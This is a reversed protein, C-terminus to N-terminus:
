REEESALARRAIVRMKEDADLSISLEGDDTHFRSNEQGSIAMLAGRLREVERRHREVLHDVNTMCVPCTGADPGDMQDRLKRIWERRENM